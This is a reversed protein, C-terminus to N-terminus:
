LARENFTVRDRVHRRCLRHVSPGRKAPLSLASSPTTFTLVRVCTRTTVAPLCPPRLKQKERHPHDRPVAPGHLAPEELHEPAWKDQAASGPHLSACVFVFAAVSLPVAYVLVTIHTQTPSPPEATTHAGDCVGCVM